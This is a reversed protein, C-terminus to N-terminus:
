ETTHTSCEVFTNQKHTHVQLKAYFKSIYKKHVSLSDKSFSWTAPLIPRAPYIYRLLGLSSGRGKIYLQIFRAGSANCELRYRCVDSSVDQTHYQSQLLVVQRALWRVYECHSSQYEKPMSRCFTLSSTLLKAPLDAYVRAIALSILLAKIYFNSVTWALLNMLWTRRESSIVQSRVDYVICDMIFEM